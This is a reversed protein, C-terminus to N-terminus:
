VHSSNVQHGLGETKGEGDEDFGLQGGAAGLLLVAHGHQEVLVVGVGDHFDALGDMLGGHGLPAGVLALPRGREAADVELVVHGRVALVADM